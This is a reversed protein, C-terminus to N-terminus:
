ENFHINIIDSIKDDEEIRKRDYKDISDPAKGVARQSSNRNFVEGTTELAIPLELGLRHFVKDRLYDPKSESSIYDNLNLLHIDISESRFAREFNAYSRKYKEVFQDVSSIKNWSMNKLSKWVECPHRLCYFYVPKVGADLFHKEYAEIFNESSPTKHGIFVEDGNFDSPVGKNMLAFNLYFFWAKRNKWRENRHAKNINADDLRDAIDILRKMIPNPVEGQLSIGPHQNILDAFNRTGSRPMGMVFLAKPVPLGSKFPIDM